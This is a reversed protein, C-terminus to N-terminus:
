RLRISIRVWGPSTLKVPESGVSTVYPAQGPDKIFVERRFFGGGYITISGSYKPLGPLDDNLNSQFFGICPGGFSADHTLLGSPGLYAKRGSYPQADPHVFNTDFIGHRSIGVTAGPQDVRRVRRQMAPHYQKSLDLEEVDNLQIGIPLTESDVTEAYTVYRNGSPSVSVIGGAEGARDKRFELCLDYQQRTGGIM